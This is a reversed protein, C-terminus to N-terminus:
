TCAIQKRDIICGARGSQQATQPGDLVNIASGGHIATVACLVIFNNGHM